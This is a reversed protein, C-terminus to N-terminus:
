SSVLLRLEDVIKKGVVEPSFYKQLTEKGSRGIAERFGSDTCARLILEAIERPSDGLLSNHMHALEPIAKKNQAHAVVCAGHAWAHLFRTHAGGLPWRHSGVRLVEDSILANNLILFVDSERIEKDIDDVWGRMIINKHRLKNQLFQSLAGKGYIHIEYERAGLARELEPMLYAALYYLGFSNGTGGLNGLSGLIKFKKTGTEPELGSARAAGNPWINQMYGAQAIGNHAYAHANYECIVRVRQCQKGMSM